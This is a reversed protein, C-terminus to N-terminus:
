GANVHFYVLACTRMNGSVSIVCFVGGYAPFERRRAPYGDCLRRDSYRRVGGSGRSRVSHGGKPWGKGRSGHAHCKDGGGTQLPASHTLFFFCRRQKRQEVVDRVFKRKTLTTWYCGILPQPIEASFIRREFKGARTKCETSVVPPCERPLVCMVQRRRRRTVTRCCYYQTCTNESAKM